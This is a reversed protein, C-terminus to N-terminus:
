LASTQNSFDLVSQQTHKIVSSANDTASILIDINNKSVM